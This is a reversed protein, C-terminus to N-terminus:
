LINYSHADIWNVIVIVGMNSASELAIDFDVTQKCTNIDIPLYEYTCLIYHKEIFLFMRFLHFVKWNWFLRQVWSISDIRAFILIRM